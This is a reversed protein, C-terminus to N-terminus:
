KTKSQDRIDFNLELSNYKFSIKLRLILRIEMYRDYMM